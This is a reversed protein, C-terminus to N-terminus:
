ANKEREVFAKEVIKCLINMVWQLGGNSFWWLVVGAQKDTMSPGGSEGLIELHWATGDFETNYEVDTELM